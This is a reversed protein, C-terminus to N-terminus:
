GNKLLFANIKLIDAHLLGNKEISWQVGSYHM